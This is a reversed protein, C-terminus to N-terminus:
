RRPPGPGPTSSRSSSGSATRSDTFLPKLKEIHGRSALGLQNVYGRGELTFFAGEVFILGVGGKARELYHDILRETCFGERTAYNMTMQSMALRNKLRLGGLQFPQFLHPYNM